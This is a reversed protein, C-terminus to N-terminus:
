ELQNWDTCCTYKLFFSAIYIEIKNLIDSFMKGVDFSISNETVSSINSLFCWRIINLNKLVLTLKESLVDALRKEPKLHRMDHALRRQATNKKCEYFFYQSIKKLEEWDSFTCVFFLSIDTVCLGHFHIVDKRHRRAVGCGFRFSVFHIPEIQRKVMSLLFLCCMIPEIWLLHCSTPLTENIIFRFIFLFFLIANLM